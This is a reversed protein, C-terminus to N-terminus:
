TKRCQKPPICLIKQHTFCDQYL